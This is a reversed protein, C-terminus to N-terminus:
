LCYFSDRGTLFDVNLFHLESSPLSFDFFWVQSLWSELPLGCCPDSTPTSWANEKSRVFDLSIEERLNLLRLFSYSQGLKPGISLVMSTIPSISQCFWRLFERPCFVQNITGHLREPVWSSRATSNTLIITKINEKFHKLGGCM